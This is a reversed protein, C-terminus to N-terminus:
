VGRKISVGKDINLFAKQWKQLFSSVYNTNSFRASRIKHDSQVGSGSRSKETKTNLYNGLGSLGVEIRQAWSIGSAWPLPTANFIQEKSPLEITMKASGSSNFRTVRFNTQQLLAIIPDIPKDGSDFGIFSFLNGYGGLTGSSNSSTPGALIERTVPLKLFDDIMQKKMKEFKQYILEGNKTKLNKEILKSNNKKSLSQKIEKDLQSNNITFRISM